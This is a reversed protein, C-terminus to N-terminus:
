IMCFTISCNHFRNIAEGGEYRTPCLEGFCYAGALTLDKPLLETLVQGEADSDAGLLLARGCCSVCLITSYEHEKQASAMELLANMSERCSTVLDKKNILCINANAGVPVDGVCSGSGTELDLGTIHRMLPVENNDGDRTLMMPYPNFALLVDPVDTKLGFGELYQVFTEDGVTYVINEKADTVKRTREAFRSTVHRMSFLPKVDGSINVIIISDKYEHGSLFVRASVYEYDDSAVGGIIPANGTERSLIDPYKDASFPMNNPCFTLLLGPKYNPGSNEPITARYADIIKQSYDDETLNESIAASFICDDATLVTLLAASHHYGDQNIVALTTMGVIEIGLLNKLEKTVAVADMDADCTLIGISNKMVTLSDNISDALQRAAEPADDLEYTIAVASKM